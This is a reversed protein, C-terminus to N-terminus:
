ENLEFIKFISLFQVYRIQVMFIIVTLLSLLLIARAKAELMTIIIMISQEEMSLFSSQQFKLSTMVAFIM